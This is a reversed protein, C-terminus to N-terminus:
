EYLWITDCMDDDVGVFDVGRKKILNQKALSYSNVIKCERDAAECRKGLNSAVSVVRLTVKLSCLGFTESSKKLTIIKFLSPNDANVLGVILAGERQGTLIKSIQSPFHATVISSKNWDVDPHAKVAVDFGDVAPAACASLFTSALIYVFINFIKM